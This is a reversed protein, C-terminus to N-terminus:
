EAGATKKGPKIKVIEGQYRIGKGKYPEPKKKDRIKAAFEGVAQKDLGRVSILNGKTVEVELKEPITMIVPHSFGLSMNLQKTEAGAKVEAKYGIGIIELKKEFRNVVGEVMNQTLSRFLGWLASVESLLIIEKKSEHIEVRVAPNIVQRLEGKPGEVVLTTLSKEEEKELRAKVGAPIKVPQKGIRSM